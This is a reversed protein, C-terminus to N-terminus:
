ELRRPITWIRQRLSKFNWRAKFGADALLSSLQVHAQSSPSYARQDGLTERLLKIGEIRCFECQLIRKSITGRYSRDRNQSRDLLSLTELCEGSQLRARPRSSPRGSRQAEEPPHQYIRFNNEGEVGPRQVQYLRRCAPPSHPCELLRLPVCRRMSRARLGSSPGRVATCPTHAEM